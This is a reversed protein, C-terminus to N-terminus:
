ASRKFGFGAELDFAGEPEGAAANGSAAVIADLYAVIIDDLKTPATLANVNDISAHVTSGNLTNLVRHREYVRERLDALLVTTGALTSSAPTVPVDRTDDVPHHRNGTSTPVIHTILRQRLENVLDVVNLQSAAPFRTVASVADAITHVGALSARHSEFRLRLDNATTQLDTAIASVAQDVLATLAATVTSDLAAVRALETTHNLLEAERITENVVTLQLTAGHGTSTLIPLLMLAGVHITGTQTATLVFRPDASPAGEFAAPAGTYETVDYATFVYEGPTDPTFETTERGLRAIETATANTVTGAITLYGLSLASSSPTSTLEWVQMTGSPNTLSLTVEEDAM